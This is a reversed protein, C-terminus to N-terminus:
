LGRCPPPDRRPTWPREANQGNCFDFCFTTCTDFKDSPSRRVRSFSPRSAGEPKANSATASNKPRSTVRPATSASYVPGAASEGLRPARPPASTSATRSRGRSPGAGRRPQGIPSTEEIRCAAMATAPETPPRPALSASAAARALRARQATRSRGHDARRIWPTPLDRSATRALVSHAHFYSTHTEKQM